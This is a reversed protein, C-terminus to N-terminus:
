ADLNLRYGRKVITQVCSRLKMAERLRTVAMEVAHGDAGRPLCGLLEARSLVRGGAGALTRIVAMPAPALQCPLDDVLVAHGRLEIRHGTALTLKRSRKPLATAVARVLSGLRAREPQVPDVGLRRLPAATVPGVAAALVGSDDVSARFADILDPARDEAIRLLANAAPASTFTVADVKGACVADVLRRVPAVDDPATWRYVPVPVASGGGDEVAQVFDDDPDGHLQIAVRRGAVDRDKLHQVVEVGTESPATWDETLGAARVAGLAKPGRCLIRARDLVRLLDGAIGWSEAAELWGRFGIGTTAVVLDPADRVLEATAERLAVDDPLPVIKLAPAVVTRAGRRELMAAFEDCRRQATVAVTYGTLPATTM